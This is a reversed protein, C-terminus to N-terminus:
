MYQTAFFPMLSKKKSIHLHKYEFAKGTSIRSMIERMYAIKKESIFAMEAFFYIYILSFSMIKHKKKKETLM